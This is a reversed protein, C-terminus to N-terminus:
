LILAAAIACTIKKRVIYDESIFLIKEIEIRRSECAERSMERCFKEAEKKTINKGSFEFILGNCDKYNKPITIALAVTIKEGVKKSFVSSYVTPVISGIKPLIKERNNTSLYFVKAAPPVISSVKLLNFNGIGANLLANDFANLKTRGIGIGSTLIIKNPLKM